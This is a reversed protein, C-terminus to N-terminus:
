YVKEKKISVAIVVAVVIAAVVAAAVVIWIITQPSMGSETSVAQSTVIYLPTSDDTPTESYIRCTAIWTGEVRTDFNFTHGTRYYSGSAFLANDTAPDVIDDETLVYRLGDRGTGEVSWVLLSRDVFRYEESLSFLYASQMGLSSPQEAVTVTPESLTNVDTPLVEFVASTVEAGNCVFSFIYLGWGGHTQYLDDDSVLVQLASYTNSADITLDDITLNIASIIQSKETAQASFITGNVTHATNFDATGESVRAPTWSVTYSYNYTSSDPLNSINFGISFNRLESWNTTYYNYDQYTTGNYQISSLTGQPASLTEGDYNQASVSINESYSLTSAANATLITSSFSAALMAVLCAGAILFYSKNLSKAKKMEVERQKQCNLNILLLM